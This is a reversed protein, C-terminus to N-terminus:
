LTQATVRYTAQACAADFQSGANALLEARAAAPGCPTRYPRAELMACYTDAVAIIRAGLPIETGKLGDPYGGGDWREHHSRVIEVVEAPADAAALLDAGAAPHRRMADWEADDLRGPKSIISAPVDIKGVDHVTAALELLELRRGTLGLTRGVRTAIAAVNFSHERLTSDNACARTILADIRDPDAHAGWARGARSRARTTTVVSLISPQNM